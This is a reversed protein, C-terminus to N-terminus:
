DSVSESDDLNLLETELEYWTEYEIQANNVQRHQELAEQFKKTVRQRFTAVYPRQRYPKPMFRLNIEHHAYFDEKNFVLAIVDSFAALLAQRQQSFYKEQTSSALLCGAIRGGFRVPHAAASVEFQDKVAPFAKSQFLNDDNIVHRSEVAYGSLSELGLFVVDHELDATWPPTGKGAVERLSRVTGAARDPYPPMCLILRVAMGLRNPDLQALAQRLVVDSIRWFRLSETTTTRINLVQAFFDSPIQESTDETLWSHIDPYEDQLADLLTQRYKPHVVRVLQMLHPRQPKSEGNAWRSLTMSTVGLATSLRQREGPSKIM